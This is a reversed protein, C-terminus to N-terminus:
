CLSTHFVNRIDKVWHISWGQWLVLKEEFFLLLVKKAMKSCLFSWLIFALGKNM